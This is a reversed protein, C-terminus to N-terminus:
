RRTSKVTRTQKRHADISSGVLRVVSTGQRAYYDARDPDTRLYFAQDGPDDVDIVCVEQDMLREIRAQVLVGPSPDIKATILDHLRRSWSDEGHERYTPDLLGVIWYRGIKPYGHLREAAAKHGSYRDREVAGIIVTGGDSNLLAVIAKLVGKLPYTRSEELDVGSTLWPELPAFLSGVVEVIERETGELLARVDRPVPTDLALSDKFILADHTAVPFATVTAFAAVTVVERLPELLEDRLRYFQDHGFRCQILFLERQGGRGEYLSYQSIVDGARSLVTAVRRGLRRRTRDDPSDSSAIVIVLQIGDAPSATAVLGLASYRRILEQQVATTGRVSLLALESKPFSRRLADPAPRRVGAEDDASAWVWDHLVADVHFPQSKVLGLPALRDRMASAVEREQSPEVYCRALLDFSGLLEYVTYSTIGLDEFTDRLADAIHASSDVASFALLWFYLDRGTWAKHVEPHWYMRGVKAAERTSQRDM